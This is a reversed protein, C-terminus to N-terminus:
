TSSKSEEYQKLIYVKKAECNKEPPRSSHPSELVPNQSLPPPELRNPVLQYLIHNQTHLTSEVM